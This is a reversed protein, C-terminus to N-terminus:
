KYLKCDAFPVKICKRGETDAKCVATREDLDECPM